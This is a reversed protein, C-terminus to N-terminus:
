APTRSQTPRSPPRRATRAAVTEGPQRGALGASHNAPRARPATAHSRPRDPCGSHRPERQAREM